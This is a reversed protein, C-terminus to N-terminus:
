FAKIHVWAKQAVAWPDHLHLLSTGDKRLSTDPYLVSAIRSIFTEIGIYRKIRDPKSATINGLGRVCIVIFVM